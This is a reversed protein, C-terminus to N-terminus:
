VTVDGQGHSNEVNLTGSLAHFDIAEPRQMINAHWKYLEKTRPLSEPEFFLKSDESANM